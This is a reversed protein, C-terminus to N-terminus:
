EEVEIYLIKDRNVICKGGILVIRDLKNQLTQKAIFFDEEDEFEFERYERVRFSNYKENLSCIKIKM